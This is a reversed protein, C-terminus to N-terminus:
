GRVLVPQLNMLLSLGIVDRMMQGMSCTRKEETTKLRSPNDNDVSTSLAICGGKIFGIPFLAEFFGTSPCYLGSASAHAPYVVRRTPHQSKTGV